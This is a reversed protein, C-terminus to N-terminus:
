WGSFAAIWNRCKSRQCNLERLNLASGTRVRVPLTKYAFLMHHLVVGAVKAFVWKKIGLVLGKEDEFFFFL